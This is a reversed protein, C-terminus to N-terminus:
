LTGVAKRLNLQRTIERQIERDRDAPPALALAIGIASMLFTLGIGAWILTLM